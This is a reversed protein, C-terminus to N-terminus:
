ANVDLKGDKERLFEPFGGQWPNNLTSAQMCLRFSNHSVEDKQEAREQDAGTRNVVPQATHLAGLLKV